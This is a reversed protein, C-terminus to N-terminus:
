KAQHAAEDSRSPVASILVAAEANLFRKALIELESKTIARYEADRSRFDALSAPREQSDSIAMIWYSNDGRMADIGDIMPKIARTFEDDAIPGAALDAAVKKVLPGIQPVSAADVVLQAAFYGFEPFADVAYYIVSPTYTAGLEERIKVRLRDNLIQRLVSLRRYSSVDAAGATPWCVASVARPMNSEFTFAKAKTNAPFTLKRGAAFKPKEQARAPLAGLTTSLSKLVTDAEVDGVVTVELYGKALPEALWTELDALTLKRVDSKKPLTFRPDDSRLFATGEYALVGEATHAGQDYVGDMVEHFQRLTEPRYGPATLYATILQMQLDLSSVLCSGGLEFADDGVSFAVSVFKDSIQRNLENFSLTKLGGSIFTEGALQKLGPKDAPLELLGGGFRVYVRARNKEFPTQKINVRVHNAFEAQVIGLDAVQNKRVITGAPGFGAASFAKVADDKPAAIPMARGATFAALIQEEPRNPISVNGSVSVELDQSDWQKRFRADCDATRVTPLYAAALPVLDTPHTFVGQGILDKALDDALASPQRTEDQAIIAELLGQVDAKAGDLEGATFGHQLARRREQELTAVVTSWNEPRCVASLYNRVVLNYLRESGLGAQQLPSNRADVLKALRKDFMREVLLDLLEARLDDKTQTRRRGPEVTAFVITAAAADPISTFRATTRDGASYSGRDPDEAEGRRAKADAFQKRIAREVMVTDFDGVAVIITRGPTYWTEYFDVFRERKIKRVSEATGLPMRNEYKTGTLAKRITGVAWRYFPTNRALLENLIVGREKEIEAEGLTMGDLFDRFLRLGDTTLEENARPLELHYITNDIETVANTHAGFAMGLRQFYEFTQGSPFNKTGNFAMHELFHAMGQQDDDEMGSGALVIMRLSARTPASKTPLLAYRLGNDLKGWVVRADPKADSFEHPWARAAGAKPTLEAAESDAALLLFAGCIVLLTKM